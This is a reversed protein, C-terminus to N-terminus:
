TVLQNEFTLGLLQEAGSGMEWEIVNLYIELNTKSLREELRRPRFEKRQAFLKQLNFYLNKALQQTITSAGRAFGKRGTRPSPSRSREEYGEHQYFADDEGTLVASKLTSSILTYPVWSQYITTKKGKIRAKNRAAADSGHNETKRPSTRCTIYEYAALVCLFSFPWSFRKM